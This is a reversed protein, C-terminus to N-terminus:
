SIVFNNTATFTQGFRWDPGAVNWSTLTRRDGTTVRFSLAGGALIASCQWNQGWNRALPLWEAYHPVRVAARAVDGAGGVNTILVVNFYRFGDLRFRIGGSRRCGVRRYAVPVVVGGRNSDGAIRLFAPMSLEFHARPPNCWGGGGGYDPPCFSTATVRTVPSSSKSSDGGTTAASPKIEFCAGCSRGEDFLATSLAAAAEAAYGAASYLDGYGCAGGTTASADDGADGYHLSSSAHASRWQWGTDSRAAVAVMILAQLQLLLHLRSSTSCM